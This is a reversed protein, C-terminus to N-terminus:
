GDINYGELIRDVRDVLARVTELYEEEPVKHRVKLHFEYRSEDQQRQCFSEVCHKVNRLISILPPQHDRPPFPFTSHTDPTAGTSSLAAAISGQLGHLVM